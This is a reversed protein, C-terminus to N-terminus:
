PLRVIRRYSYYGKSLVSEYEHISDRYFATYCPLVYIAGDGGCLSCGGDGGKKYQLDDIIEIKYSDYTIYLGLMNPQNLISATNEQCTGINYIETLMDELTDGWRFLTRAGGNCLYEWEDETPLTFAGKKLSRVAQDLSAADEELYRSDREVIMDGIDATRLPSLCRSLHENWTVMFEEWSRYGKMEEEVAELKEALELRLKEEHEADGGDRARDIEMQYDDRLSEKTEEYYEHGAAFEEQLGSLVGEGLACQSTDWGLVVNKQGPVFVFPVGEYELLWTKREMGNQNTTITGTFQFDMGLAEIRTRVNQLYESMVIREKIQNKEAIAGTGDCNSDRNYILRDTKFVANRCFVNCFDTINIKQMQQYISCFFGHIQLSRQWVSFDNKTLIVFLFNLTFHIKAKLRLTNHASTIFFNRTTFIM